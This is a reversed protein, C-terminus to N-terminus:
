SASGAAFRTPLTADCASTSVLQLPAHLVDRPRQAGQPQSLPITRGPMSAADAAYSDQEGLAKLRVDLSGNLAPRASQSRAEQASRSIVKPCRQAGAIHVPWASPACLASQTACPDAVSQQASVGRLAFQEMQSHM